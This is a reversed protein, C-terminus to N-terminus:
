GPGMQGTSVAEALKGVEGFLHRADAQQLDPPLLHIELHPVTVRVSIRWAGGSHRGLRDWHARLTALDAHGDDAVGITRGSADTWPEHAELETDDSRRHGATWATPDVLDAEWRPARKLSLRLIIFDRRGRTRAFAWLAGLDRPELVVMVLAERYPARAQAISLEAVSSGLWRMTTRPGLAPLGSQMWALVRNGRSINRQTGFAFWVMVIALVLVLLAPLFASPDPM